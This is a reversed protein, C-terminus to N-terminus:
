SQTTKFWGEANVAIDFNGGSATKDEGFDQWGLLPSDSATGTSKYIVAYRATFSATTWQVDDSDLQVEDNAADITGSANALGTGGATYGTGSVENTLDDFYDHADKDPTYSSTALAVKITDDEWDVLGNTLSLVGHNYFYATVAM